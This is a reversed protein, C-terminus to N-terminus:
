TFLYGIPLAPSAQSYSRSTTETCEHQQVSWHNTVKGNFTINEGCKQQKNTEDTDEKNPYHTSKKTEETITEQIIDDTTTLHDTDNIKDGIFEEKKDLTNELFPMIDSPKNEKCDSNQDSVLHDIFPIVAQDTIMSIDTINPQYESKNVENQIDNTEEVEQDAVSLELVNKEEENKIGITQERINPHDVGDILSERVNSCVLHKDLDPSQGEAKQLLLNKEPGNLIVKVNISEGTIGRTSISINETSKQVPLQSLNLIPSDIDDMGAENETKEDIDLDHNSHLQDSCCGANDTASIVLKVKNDDVITDSEQDKLFIQSKLEQSTSSERKHPATESNIISAVTQFEDQMKEDYNSENMDLRRSELNSELHETSFNDNSAVNAISNKVKENAIHNSGGSNLEDIVKIKASVTSFMKQDQRILNNSNGQEFCEDSQIIITKPNSYDIEDETNQLCEDIALSSDYSSVQPEKINDKDELASNKCDLKSGDSILIKMNDPDDCDCSISQEDKEAILQSKLEPDCEANWDEVDDGYQAPLRLTDEEELSTERNQAEQGFRDCEANWDEKEEAFTSSFFQFM